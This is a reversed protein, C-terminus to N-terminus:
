AAKGHCCVAGREQNAALVEYRSSVIKIIRGTETM